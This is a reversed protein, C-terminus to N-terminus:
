LKPTFGEDSSKCIGALLEKTRFVKNDKMYIETERSDQDVKCYKIEYPNIVVLGQDITVVNFLKM